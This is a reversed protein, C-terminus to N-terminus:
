KLRGKGGIMWIFVEGIIAIFIFIAPIKDIFIFLPIALVICLLIVLWNTKPKEELQINEHNKDSAKDIDIHNKTEFDEENKHNNDMIFEKIALSSNEDFNSVKNWIHIYDPLREPISLEAADVFKGDKVMKLIMGKHVNGDKDFKINGSAGDYEPM